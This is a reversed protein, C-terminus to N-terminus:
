KKREQLYADLVRTWTDHWQEGPRPKMAEELKRTREEFVARMKNHEAEAAKWKAMRARSEARIEEVAANQKATLEKLVANAKELAAAQALVEAEAKAMKDITRQKQTVASELREIERNKSYVVSGHYTLAGLVVAGAVIAGGLYLYTKIM